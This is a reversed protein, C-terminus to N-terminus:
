GRQHVRSPISVSPPLERMRRAGLFCFDYFGIIQRSTINAVEEDFEFRLYDGLPTSEIRTIQGEVERGSALRVRVILGVPYLARKRRQLNIPDAPHMPPIYCLWFYFAV